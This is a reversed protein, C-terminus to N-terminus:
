WCYLVTVEGKFVETNELVQVSEFEHEIGKNKVVLVKIADKGSISRICMYM